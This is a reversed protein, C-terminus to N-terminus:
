PDSLKSVLSEPAVALFHKLNLTYIRDAKVKGATAFLLADYITGGQIGALAAERILRTYDTGTLRSVQFHKLVNEELSLLAQENLCAGVFDRVAHNRKTLFGAAIAHCRRPYIAALPELRGRLRPVAWTLSDCRIQLERLFATSMQPLDVVLALLLPFSAARLAREVVGLPGFGPELDLLVPCGLRSYDVGPRGSVFIEALGAARLAQLARQILPQGEVELWAKDQGMRRSGGGALVVASLDM